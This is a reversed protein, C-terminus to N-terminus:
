IREDNLLAGIKKKTYSEFLEKSVDLLTKVSGDKFNTKITAWVKKNRIAELFEHGKSTLRLAVISWNCSWDAGRALGFGPECDERTVLHRDHLLGLHFIFQEDNYDFGAEKLDRISVVPKCASEFAELLGKTYDHDIKM